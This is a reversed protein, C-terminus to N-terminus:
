FDISYLSSDLLGIIYVKKIDTFLKRIKSAEIISDSINSPNDMTYIYASNSTMFPLVMKTDDIKVIIDTKIDESEVLSKYIADIQKKNPIGNEEFEKDDAQDIEEDLEDGDYFSTLTTLYIQRPTLEIGLDLAIEFNVNKLKSKAIDLIPTRGLLKLISYRIFSYRYCYYVLRERYSWVWSPYYVPFRGVFNTIKM